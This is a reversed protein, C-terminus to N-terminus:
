KLKTTQQKWGKGLDIRMTHQSEKILTIGLETVSFKFVFPSMKKHKLFWEIKDHGYDYMDPLTVRGSHGNIIINVHPFEKKLMMDQQIWFLLQYNAPFGFHCNLARIIPNGSKELARVIHVSKVQVPIVTLKDKKM